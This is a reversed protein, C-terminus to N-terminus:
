PTRPMHQVPEVGILALGNRFVQGIAGALFLRARSIPANDARIFRRGPDDIGANWAAHFAAALDALFFAIRHPERASAAAEVVRPFQAALKVLTLDQTDLPTLDPKGSLVVGAASARQSLSQIRAHAYHVYFVPNDRSAEVAKAFDFDM